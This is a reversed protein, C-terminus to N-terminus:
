PADRLSKKTYVSSSLRFIRALNKNSILKEVEVNGYFLGTFTVPDNHSFMINEFHVKTAQHTRKLCIENPKVSDLIFEMSLYLKKSMTLNKLSNVLCDKHYHLTSTDVFPFM